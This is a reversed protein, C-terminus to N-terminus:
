DIWITHPEALEEPTPERDMIVVEPRVDNVDKGKLRSLLQERNGM